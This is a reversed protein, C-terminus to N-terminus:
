AAEGNFLPGGIGAEKTWADFDAEIQTWNTPHQAKLDPTRGNAVYGGRAPDPSLFGNWHDTWRTPSIRLARMDARTVYGRRELVLLLKIAAIKWESLCVPSARGGTVDPVYAPVKCREAPLWHPWHDLDYLSGPDPLHPSFDYGTIEGTRFHRRARLTLVTVGLHAAISSLHHQLGDDPVLAARFDPGRDDFWHGPLAQELVKPNLILKAEIGIQVGTEHVLLLDWGATEHYPTWKPRRDPNRKWLEADFRTCFAAVLDAERSFLRDKAM